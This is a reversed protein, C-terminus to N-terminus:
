RYLGKRKELYARVSDPTLWRVSQGRRLRARIDSASIDIQPTPLVHAILRQMDEPAILRAHEALDPLAVNPRAATVLTCLAALEGPRHWSPLDALSDMGILWGLWAEPALTARFHRVTHLTYNPGSQCLEWDSVEMRPEDAVALRCMELRDEAPALDDRQQKHPPRRGPILIVRQADLREAAARAVILHGHHIPNFSGGFLLTRTM